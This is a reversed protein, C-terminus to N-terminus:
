NDMTADGSEGKGKEEDGLRQVGKLYNEVGFTEEESMGLSAALPGLAGTTLAQDLSRASKRLEPSTVVRKLTELNHPVSTDSPLYPYLSEALSPNADLMATLRAPSLIDALSVSPMMSNSSMSSGGASASQALIAQLQAMQDATVGSPLNQAARQSSQQNSSSSSSEQQSTSSQGQQAATDALASCPFMAAFFSFPMMILM